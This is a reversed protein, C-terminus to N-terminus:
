LYQWGKQWKLSYKLTVFSVMIGENLSAKEQNRLSTAKNISHLCDILTNKKHFDGFNQSTIWPWSKLYVFKSASKKCKKLFIPRERGRKRWKRRKLVWCNKLAGKGSVKHRILNRFKTRPLLGRLIPLKSSHLWEKIKYNQLIWCWRGRDELLQWSLGLRTNPAWNLINKLPTENRFDKLSELILYDFCPWVQM